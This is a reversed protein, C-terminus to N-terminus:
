RCSRFALEGAIRLATERSVQSALVEAIRSRAEELELDRPAWGTLWAVTDLHPMPIGSADEVGSWARWAAEPKSVLGRYGPGEVMGSSYSLCAVRVDVPIPAKLHLPALEGERRAHYYAIKVSFVLTKTPRRESFAKMLGSLLRGPFASDLLLDPDRLISALLGEALTAAREVRRLKAERGIAAGRCSLLFGRVVSYVDRVTSAGALREAMYEGYCRWWEEGRMALRYSALAVLLGAVAGAGRGAERAVSLAARRQPDVHEELRLASEVGFAALAEGVRSVREEVVRYSL